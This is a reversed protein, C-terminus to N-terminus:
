YSSDAAAAVVVVVVVAMWLLLVSLVSDEIRVKLRMRNSRVKTGQWNHSNTLSLSLHVARGRQEQM